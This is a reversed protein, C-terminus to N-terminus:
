REYGDGGVSNSNLFESIDSKRVKLSKGIRIAPIDGSHVLLYVKSYSCHLLKSIEKLSLLNVGQKEKEGEVYTQLATVARELETIRLELTETNMIKFKPEPCLYFFISVHFLVNWM